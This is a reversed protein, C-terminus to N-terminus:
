ETTKPKTLRGTSRDIEVPGKKTAFLVHTPELRYSKPRVLEAATVWMFRDKNGDYFSIGIWRGDISSHVWIAKANPDIPEPPGLQDGRLILHNANGQDIWVNAQARPKGPFWRQPVAIAHRPNTEDLPAYRAWALLKQREIDTAPGNSRIWAPQRLGKIPGSALTVVRCTKPVVFLLGDWGQIRDHVQYAVDGDHELKEFLKPAALWLKGARMCADLDPPIPPTSILAALLLM